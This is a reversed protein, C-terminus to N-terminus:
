PRLKWKWCFTGIRKVSAVHSFEWGAAYRALATLPIATTVDAFTPTGACSWCTQITRAIGKRHLWRHLPNM